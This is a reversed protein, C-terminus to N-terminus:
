SWRLESESCAVLSVVRSTSLRERPRQGRGRHKFSLWSRHSTCLMGFGSTDRTASHKPAAETGEHNRVEAEERAPLGWRQPRRHPAKGWGQEPGRKEPIM